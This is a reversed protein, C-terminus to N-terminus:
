GCDKGCESCKMKKHGGKGMKKSKRDKIQKMAAEYLTVTKSKKM